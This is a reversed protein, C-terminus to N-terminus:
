RTKVTHIVSTESLLILSDLKWARVWSGTAQLITLQVPSNFAMQPPTALAHMHVDPQGAALNIRM